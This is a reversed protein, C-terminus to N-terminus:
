NIVTKAEKIKVSAVFALKLRVFRPNVARNNKWGGVAYLKFEPLDDYSDMQARTPVGRLRLEKRARVKMKGSLKSENGDAQWIAVYLKLLEELRGYDLKSMWFLEGPGDKGQRYKFGVKVVEDIM